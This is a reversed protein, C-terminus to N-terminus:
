GALIECRVVGKESRILELMEEMSMGVGSADAGVNVVAIGGSPINQNSTLINAGCRAFHNLMSSLNGPEDKMMIQFNVIRGNLMDNFPRIADKYKYFASRSIEMRQTAENVSLAEGTELLRKAEAVKIIIKPLASADVIFYKFRKIM